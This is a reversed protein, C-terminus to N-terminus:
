AANLDAWTWPPSQINTVDVPFAWLGGLPATVHAAARRYCALKAARDTTKVLSQYLELYGPDRESLYNVAAKDGKWPIHRITFYNFWVDAHGYVAMRIDAVAQDRLAPSHALRCAVALNYNTAFWAGYAAADSIPQVLKHRQVHQQTGALQGSRDFLIVSREFWRIVPALEHADSLPFTHERIQRLANASVFLLDTFREQIATVGVYWVCEADRLVIVLDYDSAPTLTHSVLSGIALIGEVQEKTRLRSIVTELAEPIEINM